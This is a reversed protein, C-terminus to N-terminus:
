VVSKRDPLKMAYRGLSDTVAMMLLTSDQSSYLLVHVNELPTRDKSVVRGAVEQAATTQLSMGLCCLIIVIISTVRSHFIAGRTIEAASEIDLVSTGDYGKALFLKFSERLITEKTTKM